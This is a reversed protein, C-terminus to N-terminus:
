ALETLRGLLPSELAEFDVVRMRITDTHTGANFVMVEQNEFSADLWLPVGYLTGFPPEAGVECDPFLHRFEGETMGFYREGENYVICSRGELGFDRVTREFRRVLYELSHHHVLPDVPGLRATAGPEPQRDHLM